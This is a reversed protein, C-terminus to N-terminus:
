GVDWTNSHILYANGVMTDPILKTSYQMRTFSVDCSKKAIKQKEKEKKRKM